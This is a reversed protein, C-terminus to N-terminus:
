SEDTEDVTVTIIQYIADEEDLLVALGDADMTATFDTPDFDGLSGTVAIVVFYVEEDSTLLENDGVGGTAPDTITVKNNANSFDADESATVKTSVNAEGKLFVYTTIGVDTIAAPGLAVEVVVDAAEDDGTKKTTALTVAAAQDEALELSTVLNWVPLVMTGQNPMAIEWDIAEVTDAGAAVSEPAMESAFSTVDAAALAYADAVTATPGVIPQAALPYFGWGIVAGEDTSRDADAGIDAVDLGEFELAAGVNVLMIDTGVFGSAAEIFEVSDVTLGANGIQTVDLLMRETAATGGEGPAGAPGTPGECGAFVLVIAALVTLMISLKKTM